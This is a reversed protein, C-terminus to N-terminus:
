KQCGKNRQLFPRKFDFSILLFTQLVNNKQRGRGKLKEELDRTGGGDGPRHEGRAEGPGAPSPHASHESTGDTQGDTQGDTEM